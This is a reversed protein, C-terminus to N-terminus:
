AARKERARRSESVFPCGALHPTGDKNYPVRDKWDIPATCSTCVHARLAKPRFKNWARDAM